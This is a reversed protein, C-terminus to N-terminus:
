ETVSEVCYNYEIMPQSSEDTYELQSGSVTMILTNDRYINYNIADEVGAWTILIQNEFEGDSANVDGPPPPTPCTYYFELKVHDICYNDESGIRPVLM